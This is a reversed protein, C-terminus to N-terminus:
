FYGTVNKDGADDERTCVTRVRVNNKDNIGFM